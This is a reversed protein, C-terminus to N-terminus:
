SITTGYSYNQNIVNSYNTFSGDANEYRVQITQLYCPIAIANTITSFPVTSSSITASFTGNYSADYKKQIYQTCEGSAAIGNLVKIMGGKVPHKKWSTENTDSKYVSYWSEVESNNPTRGLLFRYCDVILQKPGTQKGVSPYVGSVSTYELNSDSYRALYEESIFMAAAVGAASNCPKYSTGLPHLVENYVSNSITNNKIKELWGSYGSNDYIRYLFNKYSDELLDYSIPINSSVYCRYMYNNKNAMSTTYTSNTAGSINSWSSGNNTSQQWQYNISGQMINHGVTFTINTGNISSSISASYSAASVNLKNCFLNTILILICLPLAIFRKTKNM